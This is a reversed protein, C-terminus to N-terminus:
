RNSHTGLSRAILARRNRTGTKAFISKLNDQITNQSVYLENALQRTDSGKALAAIVEAERPSLAYARSFLDMRQIPSASQITVAIDAAVPESAAIRRPRGQRTAPGRRYGSLGFGAVRRLRCRVRAGLPASSLPGVAIIREIPPSFPM